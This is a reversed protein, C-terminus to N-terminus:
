ATLGEVKADIQAQDPIGSSFGWSGLRMLTKLSPYPLNRLDTANVQTHGSFRRLHDDVATSNLYISLGRALNRDMGARKDHFVNLHNEIGVWAVGDPLVTPDLVSAVVRRREEKSSFRKVVTYAGAPYLWRQTDDNVAIANAKRFNPLPWNLEGTRFHGPYFLPATNPGPMAHLHDRMRFDVVPGTSVTLGLEELTCYVGSLETLPGDSERTPIHIFIETDNPKVIRGFPHTNEKLDAFTDDTSTSVIVDEQVAGRTLRILMIEQLVKDDKFAKNRTDFLHIHRIAAQKLLHSRFPKYYPGNCFSRPIIAVLEGGDELLELALATFAAYTNVTELGVLSLTKREWSGNKIKKYPPNLIAHTFRRSGAAIQETAWAVFNEEFLIVSAGRAQYYDLLSRLPALVNPDNEVAEVSARPVCAAHTDFFAGLLAGAGAGPDLLKVPRTPAPFLAAAFAATIAPTLFQAIVARRDRDDIIQGKLRFAEASMLGNFKMESIDNLNKSWTHTLPM